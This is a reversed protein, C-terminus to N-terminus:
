IKELVYLLALHAPYFSRWLWRPPPYGNLSMSLRTQWSSAYAFAITPLLSFMQLSTSYLLWYLMNMGLHGAWMTTGSAYRYLFLLLLGYAGYDFNFHELLVAAAIPFLFRIPNNKFHDMGYYALVSILFTGIVNVNVTDFLYSFPLQSIIALVALRIVYKKRNRTFIMGQAVYFTYIPFAIRGVIRWIPSDWFWIIGIHDILMTLIAIWQLPSIRRPDHHIPSMM